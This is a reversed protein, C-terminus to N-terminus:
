LKSIEIAVAEMLKETSPYTGVAVFSDAVRSPLQCRDLRYNGSKPDYQAVILVMGPMYQGAVSSGVSGAKLCTSCDGGAKYKVEATVAVHGECIKFGDFQKFLPLLEETKKRALETGKREKEAAEENEKAQQQSELRKRELREAQLQKAKDAYNM